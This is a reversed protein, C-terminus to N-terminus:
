IRHCYNETIEMFVDTIQYRPGLIYSKELNYDSM